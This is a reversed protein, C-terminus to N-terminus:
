HKFYKLELAYIEVKLVNRMYNIIRQLDSNIEDVVIFLKFTGSALNDAISQEFTEKDWNPYDQQEFFESLSVGEQKKVASDLWDFGKEHMYAAYELIQGIVQRKAEPNKALKTEIICINGKIDIGILDISGADPLSVEKLMLKIQALDADSLDEIPIIEPKEFLLKQLDAEETFGKYSLSDWNNEGQRRILIRM